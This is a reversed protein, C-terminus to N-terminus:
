LRLRVDRTVLHAALAPPATRPLAPALEPLLPQAHAAPLETGVFPTTSQPTSAPPTAGRGAECCPTAALQACPAANADSCGAAAGCCSEAGAWAACPLAAFLLLALAFLALARRPLRRPM